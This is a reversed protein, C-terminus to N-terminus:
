FYYGVSEQVRIVIYQRILLLSEESAKKFACRVLGNPMRALVTVGLPFAQDANPLKLHIKFLRGQTLNLTSAKGEPIWFAVGGASLDSVEFGDGEVTLQVEHRDSPSVRVNKRRERGAFVPHMTDNGKQPGSIKM